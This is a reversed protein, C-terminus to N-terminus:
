LGCEKIKNLQSLFKRGQEYLSNYKMAYMGNKPETNEPLRALIAYGEALHRYAEVKKETNAIDALLEANDMRTMM